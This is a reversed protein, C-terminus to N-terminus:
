SKAKVGAMMLGIKEIDSSETEMDGVIRGEYM